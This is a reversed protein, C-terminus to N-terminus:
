SSFFPKQGQPWSATESPTPCSRAIPRMKKASSPPRSVTLEKRSSHSNGPCCYAALMLASKPAKMRASGIMMVAILSKILPLTYM